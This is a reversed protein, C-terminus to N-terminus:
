YTLAALTKTEGGDYVKVSLVRSPTTGTRSLWTDGEVTASTGIGSPFNLLIGGSVPTAGTVILSATSVGTTPTQAACLGFVQVWGYLDSSGVTAVVVGLPGRSSSGVASALGASSIVVWDGLTLASQFDVFVYENGEGDRAHTLPPVAARNFTQSTPGPMGLGTLHAM